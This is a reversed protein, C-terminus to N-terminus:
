SKRYYKRLAFRALLEQQIQSTGEIIELIKAERFLREAPYDPSCGNGGHVQVADSAVELAVKSTFYKALATETAADQDGRQRMEGAKVCLARAAHTKTVADGIMGRVLQFEYIKKGFQARRRSYNVMAELSAQAIAVGGWAISYRGHDLATGAVYPFGSGEKGVINEAPVHVDELDIESVYAARCGLMGPIRRTTVGKASREVIFATVKEGDAAVVIFFDAIDAFSIWKKKGSIVFGGTSKRYTTKVGRADSGIEPESLAFAGIKKGAAMLPLWREKQEKSGWRLLAEGVLSTHVTVLARTSCCAKGIEETFYGYSVPDLGLGGYEEPFTAALYKREAMKDILERPLTETRDFEAAFPKVETEAFERAEKIIDASDKPKDM